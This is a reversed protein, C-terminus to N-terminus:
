EGRVKKMHRRSRRMILPRLLRVYLPLSNKFPAFDDSFGADKVVCLMQAGVVGSPSFKNSINRKEPYRAFNLEKKVLIGHLENDFTADLPVWREKLNIEAYAHLFQSMWRKYLFPPILDRLAEKTVISFHLRAPIGASKAMAVLLLAKNMCSGRRQKLVNEASLFPNIFDFRIEDRIFYFIREMKEEDSKARKIIKEAKEDIVNISKGM